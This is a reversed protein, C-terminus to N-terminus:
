IELHNGNLFNLNVKEIHADAPCPRTLDQELTRLRVTDTNPNWDIFLNIEENTQKHKVQVYSYGMKALKVLDFGDPVEQGDVKWVFNQSPLSAYRGNKVANKAEGDYGNFSVKGLLPIQVKPRQAQTFQGKSYLPINKALGQNELVDVMESYTVCRVEPQNCVSTVFRQLARWYAGGNWTSFHHGINLPARNGHYNRTFWNVYAQYMQEEYKPANVLDEKDGSQSVYFNYDMSIITRSRGPVPIQVLPFNWFGHANKTPWKSVQDTVQSADYSYRHKRPQNLMTWDVKGLTEFLGPGHGLYPARIGSMQSLMMEQWQNETPLNGGAQIKNISFVELMLKHFWNFEHTWDAATWTTGDFHSNGHSAIEMGAQASQAVQNIRETVLQKTGGFGIDSACKPRRASCLGTPKPASYISKTEGPVPGSQSGILFDVGSIFHTFRAGNNLGFERTTKWMANTYSGDFSMLIYQPPREVLSQAQAFGAGALVVASLLLSRIAM